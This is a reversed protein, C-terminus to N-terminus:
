LGEVRVRNFCYSSDDLDVWVIVVQEWTTYFALKTQGQYTYPTLCSTATM